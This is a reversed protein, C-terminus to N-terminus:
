DKKVVSFSFPEPFVPIACATGTKATELCQAAPEFSKAPRATIPFSVVVGVIMWTVTAAGLYEQWQPTVSGVRRRSWSAALVVVIATPLVSYRDPLYLANRGLAIFGAVLSLAAIALLVMGIVRHRSLLTCMVILAALTIAALTAPVGWKLTATRQQVYTDGVAFVGFMRRFGVEVFKPTWSVVGQERPHTKLEILQVLVGLAWTIAVTWSHRTRTRIVRVLALPALVIAIPGALTIAIIAALEAAQGVTTRPDDSLGILLLAIGLFWMINTLTLHAEELGPLLLLALFAGIRRSRTPFLWVMRASLALSCSVVAIIGAGAAYALPAHGLFGVRTIWALTRQPVSLYGAYPDNLARWKWRYAELFYIQGDEAFLTAHTLATPRRMVHLFAGVAVLGLWM